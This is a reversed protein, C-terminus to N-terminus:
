SLNIYFFYFINVRIMCSSGTNLNIISWFVFVSNLRRWSFAVYSQEKNHEKNVSLLYLLM